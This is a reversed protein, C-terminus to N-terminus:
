TKKPREDGWEVVALDLSGGLLARVLRAFPHQTKSLRDKGRVKAERMAVRGDPFLAIV